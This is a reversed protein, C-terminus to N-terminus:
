IKVLNPYSVYLKDEVNDGTLIAWYRQNNSIYRRDNSQGDYQEIYEKNYLKFEIKFLDLGINNFGNIFYGNHSNIDEEDGTPSLYLPQGNMELEIIVGLKNGDDDIVVFAPIGNHYYIDVFALNREKFTYDVAKNLYEDWFKELLPYKNLDEFYIKAIRM